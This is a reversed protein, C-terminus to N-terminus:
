EIGIELAKKLPPREKSVHYFLIEIDEIQDISVVPSGEIDQTYIRLVWGDSAVSLERFVDIRAVSDPIEYRSLDTLNLAIETTQEDSSRWAAPV